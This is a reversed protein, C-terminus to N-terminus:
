FCCDLLFHQETEVEEYCWSCIRHEVALKTPKAWRGTNIRLINSGLRLQTLARRGILRQDNWGGHPVTLYSQLELRDLSRM